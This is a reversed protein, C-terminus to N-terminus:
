LYKPYFYFVNILYVSVFTKTATPTPTSNEFYPCSWPFTQLALFFFSPLLLDGESKKYPSIDLVVPWIHLVAFDQMVFYVRASLFCWSCRCACQHVQTCFFRRCFLQPKLERRSCTTQQPSLKLMQDSFFRSPRNWLLFGRLLLKNESHLEVHQWQKSFQVENVGM